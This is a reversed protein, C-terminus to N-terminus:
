EEVETLTDFNIDHYVVKWFDYNGDERKTKINNEGNYFWYGGTNYIKDADWGLSVLLSKTMGAYGGGGCMLFINKDKPFYKELLEMSEEYNAIYKGDQEYFLTIGDYTQGVEIPLGNVPIIYPLPIVEFGKIYGNLYSNGGLNEYDAPDDLMRMDRYVTDSRGLYKDITDININKDIGFDGRTPDVEPKPLPELVVPKPTDPKIFNHYIVMGVVGLVLISVLCILLVIVVKKPKKEVKVEEKVIEQEVIEEKKKTM